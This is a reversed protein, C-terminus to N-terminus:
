IKINDIKQLTGDNCESTYKHISPDAYNLFNGELTPNVFCTCSTFQTERKCRVSCRCQCICHPTPQRHIDTCRSFTRLTLQIDNVTPQCSFRSQNEYLQQECSDKIEKKREKKRQTQPHSSEVTKFQINFNQQYTQGQTFLLKQTYHITYQYFIYTLLHIKNRYM